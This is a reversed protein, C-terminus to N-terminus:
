SSRCTRSASQREADLEVPPGVGDAAHGLAAAHDLRVHGRHEREDGGVRRERGRRAVRRQAAATPRVNLRMVTSESVDVLSMHTSM